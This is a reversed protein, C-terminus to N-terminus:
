RIIELGMNLLIHQRGDEGRYTVGGDIINPRNMPKFSKMVKFSDDVVNVIYRGGEEDGGTIRKERAQGGSREACSCFIILIAIIIFGKM